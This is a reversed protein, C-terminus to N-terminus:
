FEKYFIRIYEEAAHYYRDAMKVNKADMINRFVRAFNQEKSEYPKVTPEQSLFKIVYNIVEILIEANMAIVPLTVFSKDNEGDSTQLYKIYMSGNELKDISAKRDLFFTEKKNDFQINISKLFDRMCKVSLYYEDLVEKARNITKIDM